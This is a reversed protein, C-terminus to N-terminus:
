KATNCVFLTYHKIAIGQLRDSTFHFFLMLAQFDLEAARKECLMRKKAMTVEEAKGESAIDVEMGELLAIVKGVPSAAQAVALLVALLWAM